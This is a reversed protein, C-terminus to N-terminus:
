RKFLEVTPCVFIFDDVRLSTSYGRFKYVMEAVYIHPWHDRLDARVKGLMGGALIWM